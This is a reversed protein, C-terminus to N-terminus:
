NSNAGAVGCLVLFVIVGGIALVTKGTSKERITMDVGQASWRTVIGRNDFTFKIYRQYQNFQTVYGGTSNVNATNGYVSANTNVNGFGRQTSIMGYDYLWEEIGEGSRKQTPLGFQNVVDQKNTYRDMVESHSYLVKSCGSLLFIVGILPLLFLPKM